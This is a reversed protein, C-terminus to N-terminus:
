RRVLPNAYNAILEGSRRLPDTKSWYNQATAYIFDLNIALGDDSVIREYGGSLDRDNKDLIKFVIGLVRMESDVLFGGSNGSYVFNEHNSNKSLFQYCPVGKEIHNADGVDFRSKQGVTRFDSALVSVDDGYSVDANLNPRLPTMGPLEEALRFVVVDLDELLLPSGDLKVFYDVRQVEGRRELARRSEASGNGDDLAFRDGRANVFSYYEIAAPGRDEPSIGHIVSIITLASIFDLYGASCYEREEPCELELRLCANRYRDSTAAVRGRSRTASDSDVSSGIKVGVERTTALSEYSAQRVSSRANPQSKTSFDAAFASGCFIAVTAAFFLM